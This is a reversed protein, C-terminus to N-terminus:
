QQPKPGQQLVPEIGPGPIELHHQYLLFKFFFARGSGKLSNLTKPAQAMWRRAHGQLLKKQELNQYKLKNPRVTCQACPSKHLSMHGVATITYQSSIPVHM